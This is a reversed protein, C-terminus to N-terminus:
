EMFSKIYRKQLDSYDDFLEKYKRNSEILMKIIEERSINEYTMKNELKDVMKSCYEESIPHREDSVSKSMEVFFGHVDGVLNICESISLQQLSHFIFLDEDPYVNKTVSDQEQHYRKSSLIEQIFKVKQNRFVRFWMENDQTIKLSEDFMGVRKFHSKRILCACGNVCGKIVPYVSNELQEVSYRKSFDVSNYVISKSDIMDYNGYLITDRDKQINNVYIELANPKLVDDHSLWAFYEGQMIEIGINLATAVGGNQKYVSVVKDGYSDIIRKTKGHDNSGDNIIIVERNQYTQSLASEVAEKLYNSGNYVPIVISILPKYM